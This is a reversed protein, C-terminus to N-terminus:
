DQNGSSPNFEIVGFQIAPNGVQAAPIGANLISVGNFDVADPDIPDGQANVAHNVYLHERRRVLYDDIIVDMAEQFSQNSGWTWGSPIWAAMDDAVDPALQAAMENIRDKLYGTDATEGLLADMETRLRRLYMERVTSDNLLADILRNWHDNWERYDEAGIFPHSPRINSPKGLVSDNDAYIEDSFSTGVWNSGFTLDHDWPIFLWEGTGNSDRYLYHNKHPHDNQHTLVTGVQYNLVMPINVNDFLYNTLDQGFLSNVNQVFSVLDSNDEYLRTKKEVGDVGSTFQNFMKYLAGDPDLGSRELLDEDPQEIFAFVGYFDNNRHVRMPFSLSSPNGVLAYTEFALSQRLYAKDSYTTNLNFEEVRPYQPDFLFHHGTNFEFKFSKKPASQTSGGRNRVFANDYFEGLYFVSTRTGTLSQAAYETGPELFWQFFAIDTAVSPDAVVTGFYEPSQKRGVNDPFLPARSSNGSTDDATVYWRVMEGPDSVASPIVATYIGDSAVLDAGSGDDLMTLPIEAEYMVRFVLTVTAVPDFAERVHATVVIDDEDGPQIEPQDVQWIIPGLDETGPMNPAGPTPSTFYKPTLSVSTTTIAELEPVILFDPNDATLNLGHIALINLGNQLFGSSDTVDIMEFLVANADSRQATATSNWAPLAPANRRAIEMGNLYAVFGDDYKVNLLLQDLGDVETYQFPIRVYLTAQTGGMAAQVDTAIAPTFDVQTQGGGLTSADFIEQIATGSLARDWVAVEDIPGTFHNGAGDFIGNGGINFGYSSSGYNNTSWDGSAAHQGDFYISINSGNGVAAVHHWENVPFPYTAQVSGGGPTWVEITSPYIFGFEIADNQGFLGIRSSAISGPRIWGMLTFAPLNSLIPLGTVVADNVGDFGAATNGDEFGDFLPPQPGDATLDPGGVYLGEAAIGLTGINVAQTGSAEDLRWYGIPDEALVAGSYPTQEAVGTDLGLGSTGTNWTSDDFGVSAWATGATGDNPVIWQVTAGEAVLLDIETETVLGYSVDTLQQPFQPAYAHVISNDPDTIALYDGTASLQFDTHLNGAPDIYTESDQGSAFVVLYEGPDLTIAPFTWKDLNDADDALHWGDLEIPEETPNYIEIWDSYNGDGDSLTTANSAMFETILPGTSLM